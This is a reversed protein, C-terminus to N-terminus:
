VVLSGAAVFTQDAESRKTPAPSKRMDKVLALHCIEAAELTKLNKLIIRRRKQLSHLRQEVLGSQRSDFNLMGALLISLLLPFHM